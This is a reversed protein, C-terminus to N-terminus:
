GPEPHLSSENTILSDPELWMDWKILRTRICKLARGGLRSLEVQARTLSSDLEAALYEVRNPEILLVICHNECFFFFFETIHLIYHGRTNSNPNDITRDSSLESFLGNLRLKSRTSVLFQCRYSAFLKM